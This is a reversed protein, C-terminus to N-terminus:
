APWWAITRTRTSEICRRSLRRKIMCCARLRHSASSFAESVTLLRAQEDIMQELLAQTQQQAAARDFGAPPAGAPAPIAPTQATRM